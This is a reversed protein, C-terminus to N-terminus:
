LLGPHPDPPRRRPHRYRAAHGEASSKRAHHRTCLSRLNHDSHDDGPHIHDVETAEATCRQGDDIWTCRHGDRRFIRRRIKPWADPLRASRDSDLWAM